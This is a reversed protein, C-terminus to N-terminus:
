SMSKSIVVKGVHQGQDLHRYASRADDFSFVRDIRPRVANVDYAALLDSLMRQNGSTIGKLVLNRPLLNTLNVAISDPRGGLAGLLGIRANAACCNLSKQLTVVGVTEVVIDVGGTSQLIEKDWDPHSRYNVTVDAGLKQAIALKADSSSTIAVSAGNMKALQLALISVGGTGLTLVRDGAKIKGLNQLVSWATIGAAGLAAASEFSMGSPLKVLSNAPLNAIETLWGDVSNGLDETLLNLSFDGSIWRTFHPATVRDGVVINEVGDGVAVVVGSGDSLPIRDSPRTAGYQGQAIRVDRNNLAAARTEVLVRGHGPVAVEREITKLSEFGTQEGLQYTWASSFAESAPQAYSPKVAAGTVATLGM